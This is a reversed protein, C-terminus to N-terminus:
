FDEKCITAIISLQLLAFYHDQDCHMFIQVWKDSILTQGYVKFYKKKKLVIHPDQKKM